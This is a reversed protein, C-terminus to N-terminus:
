EKLVTNVVYAALDDPITFHHIHGYKTVKSVNFRFSVQAIVVVHQNCTIAEVIGVFTLKNVYGWCRLVGTM